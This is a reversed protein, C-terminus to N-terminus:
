SGMLVKIHAAVSRALMDLNYGGELLSIIRGNCFEDALDVVIQTLQGYGKETLQMGALPDQHHADFGASILVFDPKFNKAAPVLQNEFIGIYDDNGQGGSLPVNLTFGEGKGVGKEIQLGTGPYHPWQHTSFYFVTPDDYFAHQTGNGHHVDWDVILVKELQYKQQLYRATIAINNLLCFGMAHDREAHHGPPRVAGFANDIKNNMVADAAAMAGGAALLAIRYSDPCIGTDADLYRYGQKCAQKISDIYDPTHITAIWNIDAPFPDIKVLKESLKIAALHSMISELREPREPHGAGADHRLYDEHYVLGTKKKDKKIAKKM